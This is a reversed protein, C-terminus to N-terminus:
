RVAGKTFRGETKNWPLELKRNILRKVLEFDDRPSATEGMEYTMHPVALVTTGKQPLIYEWDVEPYVDPPNDPNTDLDSLSAYPLLDQTIETWRNAADVDYLRTMYTDGDGGESYYSFAPVNSRGQRDFYVFTLTFGLGNQTGRVEIYADAVDITVSQVSFDQASYGQRLLSKRQEFSERQLSIKPFLELTGNGDLGFETCLLFYDLVTRPHAAVRDYSPLDLAPARAAPGFLLCLAIILM